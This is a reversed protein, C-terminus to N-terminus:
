DVRVEEEEEWGEVVVAVVVFHGAFGVMVLCYCGSGVKVWGHGVFGLIGEVIEEGIGELNEM